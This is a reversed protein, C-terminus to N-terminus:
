TQSSMDTSPTQHGSQNNSLHLSEPDARLTDRGGQLAYVVDGDNATLLGNPLYIRGEKGHGNTVRGRYKTKFAFNFLAYSSIAPLEPRKVWLWVLVGWILLHLIGQLIIFVSFTATNIIIRNHATAISANTYFERPLDLSMRGWDVDINGIGNAQFMRLPFALISQFMQRLEASWYLQQLQTQGNWFSSAVATHPPIGAANFDLIWAIADRYAELDLSVDQVPASLSGVSLITMNSRSAVFSVQRNFVSFTTTINPYISSGGTVCTGNRVGLPCVYLGAIYTGELIRSRALCFRVGLLTMNGGFASCDQDSFVDGDDNGNRFDIQCAPVKPFEIVPAWQKMLPPWPTGSILGGPLLYSDCADRVCAGTPVPHGAVSHLPNTVLNYVIAQVSFPVITHQYGTEMDQLRQRYRAVYSGNFPGVGATVTYSQVSNYTMGMSTDAFLVVGSIWVAVTLTVRLLPWLRDTAQLGRTFIITLSGMIGTTPSLGLLAISSLGDDRVTLAWHILEFVCALVVTLLTSLIGSFISLLTLTSSSDIVFGALAVRPTHTSKAIWATLIFVATSVVELLIPLWTQSFPGRIAM